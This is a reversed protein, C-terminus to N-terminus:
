WMPAKAPPSASPICTALRSGFQLAASRAPARSRTRTTPGTYMTVMVPWQLSLFECQRLDFQWVFLGLLYCGMGRRFVALGPDADDVADGGAKAEDGGARREVSGGEATTAKSNMVDVVFRTDAHM